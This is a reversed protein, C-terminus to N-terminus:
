KQNMEKLKELRMQVGSSIEDAVTYNNALSKFTAEAKLLLGQEAYSDGLIVFSKALYYRQTGAKASFSFCKEEVAKYEGKNFCDLIVLYSAEAGESTGPEKSLAELLPIAEERRSTELLCKAKIMTAERKVDKGCSTSDTLAAASVFAEDYRKLAYNSRAMGLRATIRDQEDASMSLLSSYAQAALEYNEISCNIDAYNRVADKRFKTDGAASMVKSYMDSAHVKDGLNRYSEALYWDASVCEPSDPWQEKFAIMMDITKAYNGSYYTQEANSFIMRIRDDDTKLGGRGIKDIYALYKDPTGLSQYLSELALLADDVYPSDPMKEIVTKFSNISGDIDKINRKITGIELMARAAYPSDPATKYVERLTTVAPAYQRLAQYTKGLEFYAEAYYDSAPKAKKVNLLLELKRKNNKVLGNALASKYYPYIKDPNIVPGSVEDYAAAAKKYDKMLFFCDARRLMTEEKLPGGVERAYKEFWKAAQGYNKDELYSWALDYSLRESEPLGFLASANYLELYQKQAEAFQADKFYTEGLAYRALQNVRENKPVFYAVTKFCQIANRYSGNELLEAGRLYNARIYNDRDAPTLVDMKDYSDLAAQWRGESLAALAMYSYILEGRARDSYRNMYDNFVSSDGNVDFALKAYNFMADETMKADYNMSSATKFCQLAAVKNKLNLYAFASQYNAIQSLSDRGAAVTSYNDVSSQWDGIAYMLSGAYFYDDHTKDSSDMRTELYYKKASEKDGKVLCAESIIRALYMKRDDPTQSDDHLAVGDELVYDFDSLEYHCNVIYYQAIPKFREDVSATEFLPIADKFQGQSYAVYGRCYAAPASYDNQEMKGIITFERQAADLEGLKYHSYGKKFVYEARLKQPYRGVNLRSIEDAAERYMERDFFDLAREKRIEECISSAKYRSLYDESIKQYGDTELRQACLTYYGDIKSDNGYGSLNQLIDMASSYMGNEFLMVAKEFDDKENPRGMLVCDFALIVIIFLFTKRMNAGRQM